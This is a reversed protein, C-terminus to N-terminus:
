PSSPGAVSYKVRAGPARRRARGRRRRLQDSLQDGAIGSPLCASRHDAAGLRRQSAVPAQEVADFGYARPAAAEPASLRWAFLVAAVSTALNLSSVGPRMPIRLRADARAAARRQPRRARHRLRPGRAPRAAPRPRAGRRGPRARAAARRDPSNPALEELRAVPLAFHLGAAGRLADPHWPDHSGTTLVRAPTPPPRSGCAPAWTASTARTRSCCSRARCPGRWCRRRSSLRPPPGPGDGGDLAAAARAPRVAGPRDRAGARGAARRLEPASGRARAAAARRRRADRAGRDRRRLAARAQRRSLRRAGGAGPRAARARLAPDAIRGARASSRM